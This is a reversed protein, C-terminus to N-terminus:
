IIDYKPDAVGPFQGIAYPVMHRILFIRAPLALRISADALLHIDMSLTIVVVLVVPLLRRMM